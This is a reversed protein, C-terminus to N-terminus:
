FEKQKSNPLNGLNEEFVAEVIEEIDERDVDALAKKKALFTKVIYPRSIWQFDLWLHARDAATQAIFNDWVLHQWMNLHM